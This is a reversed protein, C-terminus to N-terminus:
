PTTLLAAAAQATELAQETSAGLATVHGLKRGPRAAKGYLHVHAGRIGLALPLRDAIGVADRGGILNVTAAASRLTTAGLPWGLVARLHQHFQSTECAEITAHGSNHPRLALENVLLQGSTDLFMEVALIGTADIGDAISKAIREAQEVVAGPLPAPMVLHRCIGAQQVTQVAPYLAVHGRETRAILIALEAAIDVFQEALWARSTPPAQAFLPALQDESEVVHVGRGDYAGRPNKVVVPWGHEEAFDVADRPSFVPFFAPVPLGSASLVSRAELKDQALSLARPGPRLRYGLQELERLHASPVLEHDFTVVDAGEATARIDAFSSPSGLRFPAGAVVASDEASEALVVLDINLDVAAQHTMRALQGAGLMAVKASARTRVSTRPEARSTLGSSPTPGPSGTSGPSITSGPLGTPGPSITPALPLVDSPDRLTTM